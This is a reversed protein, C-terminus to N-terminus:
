CRNAKLIRSFALCHAGIIYVYGDEAAVLMQDLCLKAKFKGFNDAESGIFVFGCSGESGHVAGDTLIVQGRHADKSWSKVAKM